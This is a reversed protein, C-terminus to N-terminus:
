ELLSAHHVPHIDINERGSKREKGMGEKGRDRGEKRM